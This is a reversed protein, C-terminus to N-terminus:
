LDRESVVHAHVVRQAPVALDSLDGGGAILPMPIPLTITKGGPIPLRMRPLISVSAHPGKGRGETLPADFLSVNVGPSAGSPMEERSVVQITMAVGNGNPPVHLKKSRLAARLSAAVTSWGPRDESVDGLTLSVVNGERDAVVEFRAESDVVTTSALTISELATIVPGAGGIGLARDHDHLASRMSREAAKDVPRAEAPAERTTAAGTAGLFPNHAGLGVVDPDLTTESRMWRLPPAPASSEPAQEARSDEVTTDTRRAAARVVPGPAKKALAPSATQEDDPSPPEGTDPNQEKEAEDFDLDVVRLEPPSPAPRGPMPARAIAAILAGHIAAAVFLSTRGPARM